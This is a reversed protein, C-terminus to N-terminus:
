STRGRELSTIRVAHNQLVANILENHDKLERLVAEFRRGVKEEFSIQGEALQKISGKEEEQIVEVRTLRTEVRDFRADVADFRADVADFRGDVADFREDIRDFKPEIFAIMRQYEDATM